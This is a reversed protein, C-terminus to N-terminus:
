FAAPPSGRRWPGSVLWTLKDVFGRWGVARSRLPGASLAPPLQAPSCSLFDINGACVCVSEREVWLCLGKSARGAVWLGQLVVPITEPVCIEGPSQAQGCWVYMFLCGLGVLLGKCDLLLCVFSLRRPSRSGSAWACVCAGKCSCVQAVQASVLPTGSWERGQSRGSLASVPGPDPMFWGELSSGPVEERRCGSVACVGAPWAGELLSRGSAPRGAGSVM